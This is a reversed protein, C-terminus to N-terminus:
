MRWAALAAAAAPGDARVQAVEVAGARGAESNWVVDVVTLLAAVAAEASNALRPDETDGGSLVIVGAEADDYRATFGAQPTPRAQDLERNLATMDAGILTPRHEPPAAVVDMHTSVGTVVMFTDMKAAKGGAIDTDLRDGIALPSKAGLREAAKIFMPPKPKGASLPAVGTTTSIAAAVSGNGVLFGRESPLTTDLNSVLYRAGRSVALSAESMQKWTMERNLGQFVAAPYDDASDVLNYGAERALQKFSEAGLVFVNSGPEIVEAAMEIAAQASTMVDDAHVDYGLENLQDAVTQPARSANNTIFVMPLAAETLGELANPIAAGGEYITGDLDLLAADYSSAVSAM